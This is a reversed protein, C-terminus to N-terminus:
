NDKPQCPAINALIYNLIPYDQLLDLQLCFNTRKTINILCKNAPNPENLCSIFENEVVNSCETFDFLKSFSTKGYPRQSVKAMLPQPIFPQTMQTLRRSRFRFSHQYLQKKSNKWHNSLTALDTAITLYCDNRATSCLSQYEVSKLLM